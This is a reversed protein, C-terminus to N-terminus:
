IFYFLLFSFIGSITFWFGIYFYDNKRKIIRSYTVVQELLDRTYKDYKGKPIGYRKKLAEYFAKLSSAGETYSMYFLLNKEWIPLKKERKLELKGKPLFSIINCIISLAFFIMSIKFLCEIKNNSSETLFILIALNITLLGANKAEAYSLLSINREYMENLIEKLDQM